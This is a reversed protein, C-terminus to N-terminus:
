EDASTRLPRIRRDRMADQVIQDMLEPEDRFLGIMGGAQPTPRQELSREKAAEQARLLVLAQRIVDDESLCCGSAIQSKIFRQLDEPLQVNM